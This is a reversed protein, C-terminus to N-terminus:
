DPKSKKFCVFGQIDEPHGYYSICTADDFIDEWQKLAELIRKDVDEIIYIGGENLYKWITIFTILQHMNIHSGDDIILDQYGILQFMNELDGPKAQNCIITEINNEKFICEEVIDCGYIKTENNFFDRWMRLSAGAKYDEGAYNKMMDYYGIGIELMRKPKVNKLIKYYEPTYYHYNEPCKDVHYKIALECLPTREYEVKKLEPISPAVLVKNYDEMQDYSICKKQKKMMANYEDIETM